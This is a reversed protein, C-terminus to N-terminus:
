DAVFIRQAVDLKGGDYQIQAILDWTGPLPFTLGAAFSGVDRQEMKVKFDAKADSPRYAFLTVTGHKVPKGDKMVAYLRYVQRRKLEPHEPTMLNLRLGPEVYGAPAKNFYNNGKEYYDESVLGPSTESAIMAMWITAALATGVLGLIGVFWPSKFDEKLHVESAM